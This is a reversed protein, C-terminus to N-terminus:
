NAGRIGVRFRKNRKKNYQYSGGNYQEVSNTVIPMRTRSKLPFVKYQRAM